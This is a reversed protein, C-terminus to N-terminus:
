GTRIGLIARARDRVDNRKDAHVAFYNLTRMPYAHGDLFTELAMAPADHALRDPAYLAYGREAFWSWILEPAYGLSNTGPETSEFMITPKHLSIVTEGGRLAGLEAGEIDLKMVDPAAEKLLHDLTRIEVTIPVQRDPNGKVLSSYGSAEPNLYFETTGAREGVACAHLTCYPFRKALNKAKAPDAEVAHIRIGPDHDHVSAFISGIHAGIDVFTGWGPCLRAILRDALVANAVMSAKEPNHASLSKISSFHSAALALRGLRTGVLNKKM